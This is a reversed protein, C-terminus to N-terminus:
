MGVASITSKRKHHYRAWRSRCEKGVRREESRELVQRLAIPTGRDQYFPQPAVILIREGEGSHDVTRQGRHGDGERHRNRSRAALREKLPTRDLEQVSLVSGPPFAEM